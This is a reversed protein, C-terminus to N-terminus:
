MQSPHNMMGVISPLHSCDQPWRGNRERYFINSPMMWKKIIDLRQRYIRRWTRQVIKLWFTKLIVCNCDDISIKEVIEPQIYNKRSVIKKYNRISKHNKMRLQKYRECYLDKISNLIWFRNNKSNTQVDDDDDDDDDDDSDQEEPTIEADSHTYISLYHGDIDSTGHINENYLECLALNYKSKFNAM